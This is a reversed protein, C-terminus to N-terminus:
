SSECAPLTGEHGSVSCISVRGVGNTTVKIEGGDSSKISASVTVGNVPMGGNGAMSMSEVDSKITIGSDKPLVVAKIETEASFGGDCRATSTRTCDCIGSGTGVTTLMYCSNAESSGFRIQVATNLQLNASRLYRLDSVLENATGEVRKREIFTRMSPLAVAMLIASIVVTILLEIM